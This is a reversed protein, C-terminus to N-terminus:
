LSRPFKNCLNTFHPPNANKLLQGRVGTRPVAKTQDSASLHPRLFRRKRYAFLLSPSDELTMAACDLCINPNGPSCMNM